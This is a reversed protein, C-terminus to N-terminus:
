QVRYASVTNCGSSGVGSMPMNDKDFDQFMDVSTFQDGNLAIVISVRRMALFSNDPPNNYRFFRFAATYM